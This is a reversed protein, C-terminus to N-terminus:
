AGSGINQEKNMARGIATASHFGLVFVVSLRVYFFFSVPFFVIYPVVKSIQM